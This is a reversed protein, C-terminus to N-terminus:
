PMMDRLRRMIGPECLKRGLVRAVADDDHGLHLHVVLDRGPWTINAWWWEHRPDRRGHGMGVQVHHGSELKQRQSTIGAALISDWVRVLRAMDGDRTM